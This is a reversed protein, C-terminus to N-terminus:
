KVRARKIVELIDGSVNDYEEEFYTGVCKIIYTNDHNAYIVMYELDDERGTSIVIDGVRIPKTMNSFYRVLLFLVILILLIIVIAIIIPGFLYLVCVMITDISEWERKYRFFDIFYILVLITGISINIYWLWVETQGYIEFLKSILEV